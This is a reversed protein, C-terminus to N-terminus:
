FSSDAEVFQSDLVLRSNERSVLEQSKQTIEKLAPYVFFLVLFLAVLFFVSVIIYIEKKIAM